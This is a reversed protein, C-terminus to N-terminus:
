FIHAFLCITGNPRQMTFSLCMTVLVEVVDTDYETDMEEANMHSLSNSSHGTTSHHASFLLYLLPLLPQSQGPQNCRKKGKEKKFVCSLGDASIQPIIQMVLVTAGKRSSDIWV